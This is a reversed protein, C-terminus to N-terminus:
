NLDKKRIRNKEKLAIGEDSLGFYHGIEHWITERVVLRIKELDHGGAEEIPLQYLTIRDPLVMGIGYEDGRVTLPVGHYLGLLTTHEDLGEQIRVEESPEPEIVFGVNKIKDRFREPVAHPFEEEVIQEFEEISMARHYALVRCFCFAGM